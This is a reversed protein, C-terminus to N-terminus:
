VVSKRDAIRIVDIGWQQKLEKFCQENIYEPFWAIGHTSIGKLQVTEGKENVLQNGKVSLTSCISINEKVEATVQEYGGFCFLMISFCFCIINKM